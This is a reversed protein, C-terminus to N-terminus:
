SNREIFAFIRNWSDDCADKFQDFSRDFYSHPAGDYIQLENKVDKVGEIGKAVDTAAAKADTKDPAVAREATSRDSAGREAPKSQIKPEEVGPLIKYFDFRPKEPAFADTRGPKATEKTAERPSERGSTAAQYPTAGKNLYFAVAAALGLGLAIGIFLGLVTGGFGSRRSRGSRRKPAAEHSPRRDTRSSM